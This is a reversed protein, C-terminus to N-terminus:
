NFSSTNERNEMAGLGAMADWFADNHHHNDDHVGLFQCVAHCLEHKVTDQVQAFTMEHVRKTNFVMTFSLCQEGLKMAYVHAVKSESMSGSMVVKFPIKGMDQAENSGILDELAGNHILHNLYRQVQTKMGSTTKSM